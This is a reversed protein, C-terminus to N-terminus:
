AEPIDVRASMCRRKTQMAQKLSSRGEIDHLEERAGRKIDRHVIGVGKSHM